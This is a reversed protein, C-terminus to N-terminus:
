IGVTVHIEEPSNKRMISEKSFAEGNQMKMVLMVLMKMVMMMIVVNVNIVMTVSMVINVM